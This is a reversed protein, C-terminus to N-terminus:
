APVGTPPKTLLIAILAAVVVVLVIEVASPLEVVHDNIEDVV